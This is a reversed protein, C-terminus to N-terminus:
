TLILAPKPVLPLLLAERDYKGFADALGDALSDLQEQAKSLFITVFNWCRVSREAALDGDKTMDILAVAVM